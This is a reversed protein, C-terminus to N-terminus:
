LARELPLLCPRGRHRGDKPAFPVLATAAVARGPPRTMAWFHRYIVGQFPPRAIAGVDVRAPPRRAPLDLWGEGGPGIVDFDDRNAPHGRPGRLRLPIM